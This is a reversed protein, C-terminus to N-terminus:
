EVTINGDKVVKAWKAQESRIYGSFEQPSSQLPDIGADVIKQRVGADNIARAYESGLKAIIEQPTGAPAVLGQWAWAEYGALGSEAITPLDPMTALRKPSAVALARIKGAKIQPAGAAFDLFMTPIQGGLLEQMAPAAGKYPVHVLTVDARQRLLEMALHHPSGPGPSAYNLAGPKARALAIWEAVSNAQVSPHVVLLLAFRGTLSIPEFSKLPDYPLKKYLSPNVAFTATDGLLITYGDPASKAVAEAGIITAAGPRNEVVVQQGLNESLKASLTRAFFDTGGGPPYPVVLRILKAPYAQARVVPGALALGIGLAFATVLRALTGFTM